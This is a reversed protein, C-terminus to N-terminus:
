RQVYTFVGDVQVAGSLEICAADGADTKFVPAGGFGVSVGRLGAGSAAILQYLGTENTEGTGCATGTGNIFQVNVDAASTVSFGCAYIVTSGSIAVLQVNGSTATDIPVSDVQTADACPNIDAAPIIRTTNASSAGAGGDSSPCRDWTSGDFCMNFSAVGPVTPNATNDALAVAAPLETADAPMASIAVTRALQQAEVRLTPSVVLALAVGLLVYSCRLATTM